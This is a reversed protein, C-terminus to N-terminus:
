SPRRDGCAADNWDGFPEPPWAVQAKVGALVLRRRLLRASREGDLGRDGAILVRRVGSPAEWTRLNRTSLLAWAPLGFRASASLTTFVGEAVLLEPAPPDLRVACSPPLVGVVKRSIPLATARAGSPDLYTVEVACLAGAADSVAALLAPRRPGRETYVALPAGPHRRLARSVPAPREVGRLRVPALAHRRELPAAESWLRSAAQVRSIASRAELRSWGAGAGSAPRGDRDVLGRRRLEDMVERWTSRGFSHVVVRGESLLLSVSRDHRSHGPGPVLARRGHEYLDGGIAQVIANLSM